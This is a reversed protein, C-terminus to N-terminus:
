HFRALHEQISYGILYSGKDAPKAARQHAFHHEEEFYWTVRVLDISSPVYTECEKHICYVVVDLLRVGHVLSMPDRYVTTM